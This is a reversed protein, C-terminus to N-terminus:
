VRRMVVVGAVGAEKFRARAYDKDTNDLGLLTYASVGNVGRVSLEYALYTEADRRRKPDHSIVLAAITRGAPHVGQADPAKWTSTFVTNGACGGLCLAVGFILGRLTRSM